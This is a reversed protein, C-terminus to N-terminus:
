QLPGSLGQVWGATLPFSLTFNIQGTGTLPSPPKFFSDVITEMPIHLLDGQIHAYRDAPTLDFTGSLDLHMGGIDIDSEKVELQRSSHVVSEMSGQDILWSEYGYPNFAQVPPASTGRPTQSQLGYIELIERITVSAVNVELTATNSDAPVAWGV